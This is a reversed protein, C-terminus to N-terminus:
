FPSSWLVLMNVHIFRVFLVIPLFLVNYFFIYWMLGNKFNLFLCFHTTHNPNSRHTTFTGLRAKPYDAGFASLSWRQPSPSVPPKLLTQSTKNRLGSHPVHSMM